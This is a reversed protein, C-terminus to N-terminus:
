WLIPRGLLVANAGLALARMVDGGTRIGSDVFVELRGRAASVVSPLAELAPVCNDAQRAGHDSVIVGAAGVKVAIWM